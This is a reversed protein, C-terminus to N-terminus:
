RYRPWSSVRAYFLFGFIFIQTKFFLPPTVQMNKGQNFFQKLIKFITFCQFKNFTKVINNSLFNSKIPM